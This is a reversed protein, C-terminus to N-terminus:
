SAAGNGKLMERYRYGPIGARTLRGGHFQFCCTGGFHQRCEVLHRPTVDCLVTIKLNVVTIRIDDSRVHVFVNRRSASLSFGSLEIICHSAAYNIGSDSYYVTLGSSKLQCRESGRFSIKSLRSANAL